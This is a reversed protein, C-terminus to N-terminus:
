ETKGPPAYAQTARRRAADSELGGQATLATALADLEGLLATLAAAIEPQEAAPLRAVADCLAAVERDFGALDIFGGDAVTGRAAAVTTRLLQCFRAENM